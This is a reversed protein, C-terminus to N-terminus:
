LGSTIIYRGHVSIHRCFKTQQYIKVKQFCRYWCIRFRFYYQTAPAAMKFFRYSMMHTTLNPRFEPAQHLIVHRNRHLPRFHFRFYFELIASTQKESGSTTIYSGHIAAHPRFKAQQYIKAKQLCCCWCVRFRFYYQAATPAMKFFRYSTINGCHTTRYLHYKATQHLIVHRNHYHLRFWFQYYFELIACTEKEL